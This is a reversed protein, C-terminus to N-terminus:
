GPPPAPPVRQWGSPCTKVYPYYGRSAECYYWWDSSREAPRSPEQADSREVYVPPEAPTVYVPAPYYHYPYPPGWYWPSWLPAGFHFGIGIRARGHASAAGSVLAGALLLILALAPKRM